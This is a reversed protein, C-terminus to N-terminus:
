GERPPFQDRIVGLLQRTAAAVDANEIVHDFEGARALEARATELRRRIRDPADTGRLRLRAELVELSPPTLFVSVVERGLRDRVQAAGQVDIVLMVGTGAARHPAVESMPTGYHDTGYVLAHELMEGAAIARVFQEESWYHYDSGPTEGPRPGRTTATVGRRLPFECVRLVEAIVTTKGVGSPGAVVILPGPRVSSM